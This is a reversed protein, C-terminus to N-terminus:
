FIITDEFALLNKKRVPSRDIHIMELYNIQPYGSFSPSKDYREKMDTGTVFGNADIRVGRPYEKGIMRSLFDPKSYYGMSMLVEPRNIFDELDELSEFIIITDRPIRLLQM